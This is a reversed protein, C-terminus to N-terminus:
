QKQSQKQCSMNEFKFELTEELISNKLEQLIMPPQGWFGSDVQWGGRGGPRTGKKRKKKLVFLYWSFNLIEIAKEVDLINM